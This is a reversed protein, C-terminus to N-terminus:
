RLNAVAPDAPSESQWATDPQDLFEPTLPEEKGRFAMLMGALGILLVFVILLNESKGRKTTKGHKM